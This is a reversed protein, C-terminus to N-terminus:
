RRASEADLTIVVLKANFRDPLWAPVNPRLRSFVDRTYAPDDLVVEAEGQLCDGRIELMVQAGAGRFARWWRGDAGVFVRDGERLYNVPIQRGDPLTLLMVIAARPGNANARLEDVVRPNMIATAYLWYGGLLLGIAAVGALLYGFWRSVRGGSTEADAIEDAVEHLVDGPLSRSGAAFADLRAQLEALDM